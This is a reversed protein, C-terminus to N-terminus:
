DGHPSPGPAPVREYRYVRTRFLDNVVQTEAPHWGRFGFTNSVIVLAQGGARTRLTEDLRRMGGTFLYCVLTSANAFDAELLDARRVEVHRLGSARVRLWSVAFPIPSLEWAIITAHPCRRALALTLGGWGAGLEHMVGRTDPDIMALMAARVTPSTPMPSIGTFLTFGIVSLASGAALTLVV